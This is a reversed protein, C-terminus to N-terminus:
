AIVRYFSHWQMTFAIRNGHLRMAKTKGATLRPPPLGSKKDRWRASVRSCCLPNNTAFLPYLHQLPSQKCINGRM